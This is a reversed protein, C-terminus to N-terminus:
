DTKAVTIRLVFDAKHWSHIAQYASTSSMKTFASHPSHRSTHCFIESCRRFLIAFFTNWRELHGVQRVLVDSYM